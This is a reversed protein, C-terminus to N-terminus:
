RSFVKDKLREWIGSNKQEIVKSITGKIELEINERVEQPIKAKPIVSTLKSIQARRMLIEEQLDSSSRLLAEFEDKKTGSLTGDIYASIFQVEKEIM